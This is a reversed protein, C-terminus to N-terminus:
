EGLFTEDVDKSTDEYWRNLKLGHALLSMENFQFVGLLSGRATESDFGFYEATRPDGYTLPDGSNDPDIHTLSNDEEVYYLGQNARILIDMIANIQRDGDDKYQRQIKRGIMTMETSDLVSYEAKMLGKYGPVTIFCTVDQTQADRQARLRDMITRQENSTPEPGNESSEEVDPAVPPFVQTVKEEDPLPM